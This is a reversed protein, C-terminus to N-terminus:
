SERQVVDEFEPHRKLYSDVFPCRPVVKLGHQRAYALGFQALKGGVGKGAFAEPVETHVLVIVGERREYNLVAVADGLRVEFRSETENDQVSLDDMNTNTTM